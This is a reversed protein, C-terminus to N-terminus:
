LSNIDIHDNWNSLGAHWARMKENVLNFIKGNQSIVYHSSVKNKSNCLYEIADNCSKLATYHIIIFIIQKTKRKNFNKSKYKNILKM